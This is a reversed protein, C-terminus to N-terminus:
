RRLLLHLLLIPANLVSHRLHECNRQSRSAAFRSVPDYSGRYHTLSFSLRIIWWPKRVKIAASMLYMMGGTGQLVLNWQMFLWKIIELHGDRSLATFLPDVNVKQMGSLIKTVGKFITKPICLGLWCLRRQQFCTRGSDGERYRNRDRLCPKDDLDKVPHHPEATWSGSFAWLEM